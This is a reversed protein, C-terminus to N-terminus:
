PCRVRDGHASQLLVQWGAEEAMPPCASKVVARVVVRQRPHRAAVVGAPEEVRKGLAELMKLETAM